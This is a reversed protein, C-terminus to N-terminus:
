QKAGEIRKVLDGAERALAMAERQATEGAGPNLLGISGLALRMRKVLDLLQARETMRQDIAASLEALSRDLRDHQAALYQATTSASM